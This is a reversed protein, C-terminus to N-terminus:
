RAPLNPAAHEEGPDRGETNLVAGADQEAGPNQEPAEAYARSLQRYQRSAFALLIAILMILSAIMFVLAMGRAEGEGLLWAWSRKGDDSNMYPVIIFEAIPGILFATIPAASVEVTMAFGFVRGQKEYPIVKQLITQEAAEAAPMLTMFILLGLVYLWAWERAAFTLGIIAVGVNVWLLTKLPNKGLGFKAVLGGGIIFGVSTIGLVIGWIEVPFLTLGYPDMLTMFVGGVLNNFTTFLLLALLGPVALVLPIAGRFNVRGEGTVLKEPEPISITALHLFALITAGLAILMTPGMGLMGISLGSFVSTVLFAIGSVTGVLGNAKDRRDSPVLLTVTTSLAINRMNEVVSGALIVFVFIWFWPSTWTLLLERDITFFMVAAIAYTTVTITSSLMMATKKRLHDVIGGFVMGFVAVLLMYAGGIVGTALLSKTELYIWFTLAFWLYSSTINALATNVLVAYFSRMHSRQDTM